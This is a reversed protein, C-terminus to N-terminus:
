VVPRQSGSAAPAFICNLYIPMQEHVAWKGAYDETDEVKTLACTIQGSDSILHLRGGKVYWQTELAAQGRGIRGNPLLEMEREDHGIRVYRYRRLQIRKMEKKDSEQLEAVEGWTTRLEEIWKLCETEKYFGSVQKNDMLQFKAFNRHYFMENGNLDHQIMTGEIPRIPKQVMTYPTNTRNFALHFAEKDGHFHQYYLESHRNFWEALSIAKWTKHKDLVLQGSEWEPEDKYTNGTVKWASRSEALRGFDPWAICGTQQYEPTEFLLEPNQAPVNDADLLIIEQFPSNFVAFSKLEWGNLRPHDKAEPLLTADIFEVGYPKCLNEFKLDQEGALQWIQIPLQCDHVERLMRINVWLGPVYRLGGGCMVIGKGTYEKNPEEPVTRLFDAVQQAANDENLPEVRKLHGTPRTFRSAKTKGCCAMDNGIGHSNHERKNIHRSDFVNWTLKIKALHQYHKPPLPEKCLLSEQDTKREAFFCGLYGGGILNVYHTQRLTETAKYFREIDHYEGSIFRIKKLTEESACGLFSCESGECDTKIYDIEATNFKKLAMEVVGDLTIPQVPIESKNFTKPAEYDPLRVRHSGEWGGGFAPQCLYLSLPKETAHIQQGLDDSYIHEATVAFPLIEVNPHAKFREQVSKLCDPTPEFGLLNAEPWHSLMEATQHGYNAGIEIIHRIPPQGSNKLFAKLTTYKYCHNGEM